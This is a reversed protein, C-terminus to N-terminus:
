KLRSFFIVNFSSTSLRKNSCPATLTPNAVFFVSSPPGEVM